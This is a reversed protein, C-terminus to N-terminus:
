RRLISHHKYNVITNSVLLLFLYLEANSALINAAAYYIDTFGSAHAWALM